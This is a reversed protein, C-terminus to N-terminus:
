VGQRWVDKGVCVRGGFCAVGVFARGMRGQGEVGLEKVMGMRPSQNRRNPLRPGPRIINFNRCLKKM